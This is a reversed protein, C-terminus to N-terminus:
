KWMRAQECGWGKRSECVREGKSGAEGLEKECNRGRNKSYIEDEKKGLGM